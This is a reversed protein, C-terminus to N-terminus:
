IRGGRALKSERGAACWPPPARTCTPRWMAWSWRISRTREALQYGGLMALLCFRPQPLSSVRPLASPAFPADACPRRLLM